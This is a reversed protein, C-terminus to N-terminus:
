LCIKMMKESTVLIWIGSKMPLNRCDNCVGAFVEHGLPSLIRVYRGNLSDLIDSMTDYTLNEVVTDDCEEIVFTAMHASQGGKTCDSFLMNCYTASGQAGSYYIGYGDASVVNINRMSLNNIKKGNQGRLYIANSRSYFIDIDSFSINIIDYNATASLTLAGQMNGWFDGSQGWTGSKCGSHHITIDSFSIEGETKFGTGAFDTTLRLGCELADYIAIHHASQNQGGFFALSSARWNNEATCFRFTCGSCLNGTSWSAMDDDGNNRFSCYQVVHNTSAKCLNIGDAYNNRFRCYEVLLKKSNNGSYDAIWGGCEFHEVWCHRIVSGTGFGGQFGKGVQKSDSNQYYRKNNVTNLSLGEVVLQDASGEIGRKSYTSGDDSSATFYLETYWEGAGILRTQATSMYIRSPVEIRGAPVFITRGQNNWVFTNLAGDAAPDYQLIDAYEPYDAPTRPALVQELEIFDITYPTSNNDAKQITVTAGQPVTQSLLFHKEDFKMRVMKDSSPTNDPYNGNRVTYQWAWYSDLIFDQTFLEKGSQSVIIKFTGKTGNGDPSDPLSFRVNVGQASDVVVWKVYDGGNILQLAQQHSAESQLTRQDDSIELFVGNTTCYGEEAEYRAYPRNFWGRNQADEAFEYVQAYASVSLLLSCLFYLSKKM